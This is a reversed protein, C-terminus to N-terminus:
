VEENEIMSKVKLAIEKMKEEEMKKIDDRRQKLLELIDSLTWAGFVTFISGFVMGFLLYDNNNM